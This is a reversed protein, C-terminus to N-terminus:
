QSRLSAGCDGAVRKNNIALINILRNNTQELSARKSLQPQYAGARAFLRRATLTARLTTSRHAIRSSRTSNRHEIDLTAV